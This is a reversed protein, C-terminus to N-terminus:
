YTPAFSALFRAKEPRKSSHRPMTVIIMFVRTSVFFTVVDSTLAAEPPGHYYTFEIAARGQFKTQRWAHIPNSGVLARQLGLLFDSERGRVVTGPPPSGAEVAYTILGDSASFHSRKFLGSGSDIAVTQDAVREKPSDPFEASFGFDKSTFPVWPRKPAGTPVASAALSLFAVAALSLTRPSM